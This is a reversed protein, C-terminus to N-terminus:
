KDQPPHGWSPLRTLLAALEVATAGLVLCIAISAAPALTPALHSLPVRLGEACGHVAFARIFTNRLTFLFSRSSM